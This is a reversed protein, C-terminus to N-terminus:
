SEVRLADSLENSDDDRREVGSGELLTGCMGIADILGDAFHGSRVGDRIRAVMDTWDDASVRANIGADGLVEIRHEWLSVFILVGTRERTAFVEEEVFAKMARRHVTRIICERGALVRGIPPVFASLVGGAIGAALALTATGWGTHLWGLGWGEYFQFVVATFALALAAAIGAGKWAIGDYTDSRPVVYPVIEGSTLREAEAVAQRIRELDENSLWEKM